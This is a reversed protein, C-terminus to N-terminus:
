RSQNFDNISQEFTFERVWGFENALRESNGKIDPTDNPRVLGPDISVDPLPVGLSNSLAALVDNGSVSQGSCVNYVLHAPPHDATAVLRYAKAVDRVDTYDRRSSLDGATIPQEVSARDVIKKTLDPVIFGLTQNPGIHNFPRMVVCDLGRSAYYAAQNENLIKSVAYPSNFAVPSSEAIPMPQTADYVAGSSVLVIRPKNKQTLFYECLNTVMASNQEIYQQPNSFSPGVAALGALHIVADVAETIEPWTKSLDASLYSSLIPQIDDAPNEDRGIGIVQHGHTSLERVLHQGVFGNVGTIIINM